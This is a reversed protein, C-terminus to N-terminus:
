FQARSPNKKNSKNSFHFATNNRINALKKNLEKIEPDILLKGITKIFIPEGAFQEELKEFLNVGEHLYGLAAFFAAYKQRSERSTKDDAYRLYDDLSSMLANFFRGLNVVSVFKEDKKLINFTEKNIIIQKKTKGM